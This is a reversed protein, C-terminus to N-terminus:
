CSMEGANKLAALLAYAGKIVITKDTKSIKEPLTVQTFGGASTGKTIEVMLFDNVTKGEENRKGKSIFIYDKDDFSVIADTPLADVLEEGTEVQASVYMGAILDKADGDVTAYVKVTKDDNIAKGVRYVTAKYSIDNNNTTKFEIDQGEKIKELDKEFMTLELTLKDNNIIEFVIDTAEVYKGVNVNVTKIYGNIPSVLNVSSTIKDDKLQGVSIGILALKQEYANVKAKLTKYESLSQQYTKASNVNGEYLEKQRQYETESYELQSKSELYNQQLEIFEPNEIVALVQGKKVPSGQLLDTSKIYGGLPASVTVLNQPPVNIIGSLKLVSGINKQEVNGLEIGALKYQEENMECTNEPLTESEEESKKSGNGCATAFLIGFLMIAIINNKM